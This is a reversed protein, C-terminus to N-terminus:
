SNADISYDGIRSVAAGSLRVEGHFAAKKLWLRIQSLGPERRAHEIRIVRSGPKGNPVDVTAYDPEAGFQAALRCRSADPCLHFRIEARWIGSPLEIYPGFFLYRARGTVDIVEPCVGGESDPSLFLERAWWSAGDRQLDQSGPAPVISRSNM